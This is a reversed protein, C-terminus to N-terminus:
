ATTWTGDRIFGHLGCDPCLISPSITLPDVGIISHWGPDTCILPSCKIVGRDGRDCIHELRLTDSGYRLLFLDAGLPSREHWGPDVCEGLFEGLSMM